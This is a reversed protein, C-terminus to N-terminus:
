AARSQRKGCLWFMLKEHELDYFEGRGDPLQRVRWTASRSSLESNIFKMLDGPAGMDQYLEMMTAVFSHRFMLTATWDDVDPLARAPEEVFAVTKTVKVPKRIVRIMARVMLAFAPICLAAISLCVAVYWNMLAEWFNEHLLALEKEIPTAGWSTGM